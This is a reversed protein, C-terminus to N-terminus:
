AAGGAHRLVFCKLYRSEPFGLRVPHDSAQGRRAVVVADRGADAAAERLVDEFAVEDMAYSCSSTILVGGPALLRFARLNVERYGRRAAAADGRSKAFAPPDLMVLDFREGRRVRERLDDFANAEVFTMNTRGNAAAAARGRDVADRSSDVVVVESAGLAAHLGFSAHFAFTDLVRGRSFERCAVRNERQDLFAGTKQGRWPDAAYRVGEEEVWVEEPTRGEIQLTERPLGELTRVSADNRALVSAIPLREHLAELVDDLIRAAGHTAVQVVLHRGYLDAVLGPIGDSEGFLIRKAEWAAVKPGRLALAAEVRAAWFRRDPVVDGTAVLRLAIKSHRSWFAVGLCAGSADRVRVLDGHDANGTAAVDDVFVWPHRAAIRRAGRSRVTVDELRAPAAM